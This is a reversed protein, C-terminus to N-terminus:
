GIAMDSREFRMLEPMAFDSKPAVGAPLCRDFTNVVAMAENMTKM